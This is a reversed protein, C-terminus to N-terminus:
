SKPDAGPAVIFDYEVRGRDSHWVLDIGPYVGKYVIKAYTPINARWKKLDRGAFYNVKGPHRDLGIVRPEPGNRIFRMRLAAAKPKTGPGAKKAAGIKESRRLDFVAEDPSLFVTCGRARALFKVRSSTQGRNEEFYLPLRTWPMDGRTGDAAM